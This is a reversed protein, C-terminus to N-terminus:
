FTAGVELDNDKEGCEEVSVKDVYTYSMVHGNPMEHRIGRIVLRDFSETTTVSGKLEVWERTAPIRGETVQLEAGTRSDLLVFEIDSPQPRTSGTSFWASVTLTRRANGGIRPVLTGMLSENYYTTGNFGQSIGAYKKGELPTRSGMFNNPIDEPSDYIDPSNLRPAGPGQSWGEVGTMPNSEYGPRQTPGTNSEFSPNVLIQACDERDDHDCPLDRCAGLGIAFVGVLAVRIFTGASRRQLRFESM